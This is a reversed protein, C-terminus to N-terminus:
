LPGMAQPIATLSEANRSNQFDIKLSGLSEVAISSSDVSLFSSFFNIVDNRNDSPTDIMIRSCFVPLKTIQYM